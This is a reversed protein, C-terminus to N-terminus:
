YRESLLSNSPRRKGESTTREREERKVDPKEKCSNIIEIVV